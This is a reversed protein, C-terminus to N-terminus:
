DLGSALEDTLDDVMEARREPNDRMEKWAKKYATRETDTDAEAIRDVLAEEMEDAIEAAGPELAQGCWVCL